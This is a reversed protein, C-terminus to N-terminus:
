FFLLTCIRKGTRSLQDFQSCLIAKFSVQPVTKQREAQCIIFICICSGTLDFPRCATSQIKQRFFVKGNELCQKIKIKRRKRGRRQPAQKRVVARCKLLAPNKVAPDPVSNHLQCLGQLLCRVQFSKLLSHHFKVPSVARSGKSQILSEPNQFFLGSPQRHDIGNYIHLMNIKLINHSILKLLM